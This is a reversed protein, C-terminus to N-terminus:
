PWQLISHAGMGNVKGFCVRVYSSGDRVVIALSRWTESALILRVTVRKRTRGGGGEWWAM